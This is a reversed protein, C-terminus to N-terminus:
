LQLAARSTMAIGIPAIETRPITMPESLNQILHSRTGTSGKGGEGHECQPVTCQIAVDRVTTYLRSHMYAATAGASRPLSYCPFHVCQLQLTAGDRPQLTWSACCDLLTPSTSCPPSDVVIANEDGSWLHSM